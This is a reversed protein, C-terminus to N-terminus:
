SINTKDIGSLLVIQFTIVQDMKQYPLWPSRSCFLPKWWFFDSEELLEEMRPSNFGERHFEYVRKHYKTPM